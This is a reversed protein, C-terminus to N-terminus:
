SLKTVSIISYDKDDWDTEIWDTLNSWPTQKAVERAEEETEAEVTFSAEELKVIEREVTIEFQAM